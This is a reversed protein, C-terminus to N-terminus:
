VENEIMGKLINKGRYFTVRAWTESKGCIDGIEKFSLGAFSRQYIVDRYPPELKTIAKHLALKREEQEFATEVSREFVEFAEGVDEIYVNQNSKRKKYDLYTNKAIKCLWTLMKCSEDFSDIGKLAKMFTDATIDEALPEDAGLSLIYKKVTNAYKNYIVDFERM